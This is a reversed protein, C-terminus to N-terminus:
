PEFVCTNKLSLPASAPLALKVNLLVVDVIVTAFRDTVPVNFAPSILTEEIAFPVLLTSMIPTLPLTVVLTAPTAFTNTTVDVPAFTVPVKLTLPLTLAPLTLAVVNVPANVPVAVLAVFAAANNCFVDVEVVTYGVNEVELALPFEDATNLVDILALKALADIVAVVNTPASLPAAVLAVVAPVTVVAACGFIVLM